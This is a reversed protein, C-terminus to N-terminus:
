NVCVNPNNVCFGIQPDFYYVQGENNDCCSLLMSSNQGPLDQNCMWFKTCDNNCAQRSFQNSDNCPDACNPCVSADVTCIRKVPDFYMLQGDVNNCCDIVLSTIENPIYQNCLYFKRCDGAYPFLQGQNSANCPDIEALSFNCCLLFALAICIDLINFTKNQTQSIAFLKSKM